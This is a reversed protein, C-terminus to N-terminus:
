RKPRMVQHLFGYFTDLMQTSSGGLFGYREVLLVKHKKSAAAAMATLCGASGAGVVLVDIGKITKINNFM